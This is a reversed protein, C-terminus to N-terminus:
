PKWAPFTMQLVVSRVELHLNPFFTETTRRSRDPCRQSPLASSLLSAHCSWPDWFQWIVCNWRENSIHPLPPETELPSAQSTSPEPNLRWHLCLKPPPLVGESRWQSVRSCPVLCRFTSVAGQLFSTFTRTKSFYWCNWWFWNSQSRKISGIENLFAQERRKPRNCDSSSVTQKANGHSHPSKPYCPFHWLCSVMKQIVKVALFRKVFLFRRNVAEYFRWLVTWPSASDFCVNGNAEMIFTMRIM